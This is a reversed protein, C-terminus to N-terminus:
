FNHIYKLLYIPKAGLLMQYGVGYHSYGAEFQGGFRESSALISGGLWWNREIYVNVYEKLLPVKLPSINASVNQYIGYEPLFEAHIRVMTTTKYKITDGLYVTAPVSRMTDLIAAYTKRDTYVTDKVIVTDWKVKVIMIPPITDWEIRVSDRFVIEPKNSLKGKDYFIFGTILNSAILIIAAILLIIFWKNDM